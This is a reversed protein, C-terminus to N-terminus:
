SAEKDFSSGTNQFLNTLDPEIDPVDLQKYALPDNGDILESEIARVKQLNEEYLNGKTLGKEMRKKIKALQDLSDQHRPKGELTKYIQDLAIAEKTELDEIDDEDM